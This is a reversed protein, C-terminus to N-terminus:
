SLKHKLLVMFARLADKLNIKKGEEASRGKYKIPLELIQVKKKSIISTIEPCFAFDNEQLKISKFLKSEFVKYCTHADTLKQNNLFNSVKTLIFNGFVRLNPKYFNKRLQKKSKGLVRSGYVVKNKGKIIPEILKKYDQPDYELDADQIIVIDGKVYMQASRICAGKGKNKNHFIIKNIKNKFLLIKKISDDSSKDDVVIIQKKIYEQKLVKQIIKKITKEENYCPIIITLIKQM